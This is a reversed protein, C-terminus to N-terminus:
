GALPRRLLADLESPPVPDGYWNGQGIDCGLATLWRAQGATEVWEATVVLGLAHAMRILAEVIKSERSEESGAACLGQIFSGDIKLGHVPLRRLYSLSSYGTGFDDIALQVGMERLTRLTESAAPEDVLVARETIELQLRGPDLGSDELVTSVEALWSPEILQRPAVNVSVYPAASGFRDAWRRAQRCAETLVWRGLPVIAGNREALEIFRAPGLVGYEPHRWRVLAEVGTLEGSALDMLPQYLLHFEDRDVAGSVSAALTFRSTEGADRVADFVAWRGGGEAKAWSRAADAARQLEGPWTDTVADEAIGMCATISLRQSGIVFPPRLGALVRQALECLYEVGPPDAVLIAFEDGGARTVLHEGALLQLRHAVALLLQDGIQHGLTDNISRFGDLDLHCLGVRQVPSGESFAWRLQADMLSRNPLRTLQDHYTQHRLRSRLRHRETVDEIVGILYDPQGADDRVLSVTLYTWVVVGDPRVFRVESRLSDRVGGALEGLETVLGPADEPHVHDTIPRPSSRPDAGGFLRLLAPNVDLVRGDLAAIAIGVGAETFITRFRKESARLAHEAERRTRLVAGLVAQQERRTRARMGEAYGTALEDALEGIREAPHGAVDFLEPARTRLLRLTTRLANPGRFPPEALRAGLRRAEGSALRDARLLEVLETALETTLGTSTRSLRPGPM